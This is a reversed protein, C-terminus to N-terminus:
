IEEPWAQIIRVKVDSILVFCGHWGEVKETSFVERIRAALALRGPTRLRVLLIGHHTGPRFRRIDSFDLDQTILCRGAEQAGRWVDGDPRGALQELRVTDVDHGLDRLQVFLSEPLNEDLKLRM